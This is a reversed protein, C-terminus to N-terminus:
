NEEIEVIGSPSLFPIRAIVEETIVDIVAVHHSNKNCSLITKGDNSLIMHRPHKGGCSFSHSYELLGNELVKFKAISDEGRNSVYLNHYDRSFVLTAGYSVEKYNPITSIRQLLKGSSMKVVFVENSYETVIYLLSCDKNYIGHRPGTKLPLQLISKVQLTRENLQYFYVQDTAINIVALSDEEKNLLVCHCHSITADNRQKQYDLIKTFKGDKCGVSFITGDAYSCGFLAQQKTSYVLHTPKCGPIVINDKEVVKDDIVEFSLLSTENATQFTVLFSNDKVIFSPSSLEKQEITKWQFKEDINFYGLTPQEQEYGTIVIKM